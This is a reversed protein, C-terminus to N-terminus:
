DCENQTKEKSYEWESGQMWCHTVLLEFKKWNKVKLKMQACFIMCVQSKMQYMCFNHFTLHLYSFVSRIIQEIKISFIWYLNNCIYHLNYSCIIKRVPDSPDTPNCISKRALLLLCLAFTFQIRPLSKTMIQKWECIMKVTFHNIQIAQTMRLSIVRKLWDM